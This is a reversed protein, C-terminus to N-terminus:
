LYTVYCPSGVCVFVVRWDIIVDLFWWGLLCFLTCLLAVLYGRVSDLASDCSQLIQKRIRGIWGERDREKRDQLPGPTTRCLM